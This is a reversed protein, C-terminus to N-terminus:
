KILLNTRNRRKLEYSSKKEKIVNKINGNDKIRIVLWEQKFRQKVYESYSMKSGILSQEKYKNKIINEYM